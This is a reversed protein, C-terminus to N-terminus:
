NEFAAKHLLFREFHSICDYRRGRTEKGCFAVKRYAKVAKEAMM